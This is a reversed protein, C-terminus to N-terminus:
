INWTKDCWECLIIGLGQFYFWKSIKPQINISLITCKIMEWALPLGPQTTEQLIISPPSYLKMSCYQNIKIKALETTLTRRWFSRQLFSSDSTTKNRRSVILHWEDYITRYILNYASDTFIFCKEYVALIKHSRSYCQQHRWQAHKCVCRYGSLEWM